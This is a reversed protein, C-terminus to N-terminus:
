TRRRKGVRGGQSSWQEVAYPNNDRRSASLATLAGAITGPSVGAARLASKGEEGNEVLYAVVASRKDGCAARAIKQPGWGEYADFADKLRSELFRPGSADLLNPTSEPMADIIDKAYACLAPCCCRRIERHLESPSMDQLAGILPPWSDNGSRNGLILAPAPRCRPHSTHFEANEMQTHRSLIAMLQQKGKTRAETWGQLLGVRPLGISRSHLVIEYQVYSREAIKSDIHLVSGNRRGDHRAFTEASTYLVGDWTPTCSASPDINECIIKNHLFTHLEQLPPFRRVTCAFEGFAVGGGRLIGCQACGPLAGLKALDKQLLGYWREVPAAMHFLLVPCNKWMTQLGAVVRHREEFHWWPVRQVGEETHLLKVSGHLVEANKFCCVYLGDPDDNSLRVYEMHGAHPSFCLSVQDEFEM